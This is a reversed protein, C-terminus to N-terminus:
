DRRIRFIRADSGMLRLTADLFMSLGVGIGLGPLYGIDFSIPSGALAGLAPFVIWVTLRLRKQAAKM